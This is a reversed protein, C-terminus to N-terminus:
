IWLDCHSNNTYTLLNSLSTRRMNRNFFNTHKKVHHWAFPPVSKKWSKKAHWRNSLETMLSHPNKKSLAVNKLSSETFMLPQLHLNFVVIRFTFTNIWSLINRRDSFWDCVFSFRKSILCNLACVILAVWFFHFLQCNKSKLLQIQIM